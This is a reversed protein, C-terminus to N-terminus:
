GLDNNSQTMKDLGGGGQTMQGQEKNVQEKNIRKSVILNVV